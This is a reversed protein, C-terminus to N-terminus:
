GECPHGDPAPDLCRGGGNGCVDKKFTMEEYEVTTANKAKCVISYTKWNNGTTGQHYEDGSLAEVNSMLLDSFSNVKTKSNVHQFVLFGLSVVIASTAIILNKEYNINLNPSHFTM